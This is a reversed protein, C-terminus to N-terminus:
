HKSTEIEVFQEQNIDQRRLEIHIEERTERLAADISDESEDVKGKPFV